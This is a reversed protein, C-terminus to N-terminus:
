EWNGANNTTETLSGVRLGAFGAMTERMDNYNILLQPDLGNLFVNNEVSAEFVQVWVGSGTEIEGAGISFETGDYVFPVYRLSDINFNPPFISDLIPIRITDRVIETILGEALDDEDGNQKIITFNGYKIFNILTDFNNAYFGHEGKFAVQATRIDKLKQIAVAQRRNVERNFRVPEQISEFILYVLAFIVLLLVIQIITKLKM